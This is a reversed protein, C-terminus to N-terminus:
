KKLTPDKLAKVLAAKLCEGLEDDSLRTLYSKWIAGHVTSRLFEMWRNEVWHLEDFGIPSVSM